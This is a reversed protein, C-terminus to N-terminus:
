LLRQHLRSSYIWGATSRLPVREVNQRRLDTRPEFLYVYHIQPRLGPAALHFPASQVAELLSILHLSLLFFGKVESIEEFSPPPSMRSSGGHNASQLPEGGTWAAAEGHDTPEVM